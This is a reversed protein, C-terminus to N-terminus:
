FMVMSNTGYNMRYFTPNQNRLAVNSDNRSLWKGCYGVLSTSRDTFGTDKLSALLTVQIRCWISLPVTM